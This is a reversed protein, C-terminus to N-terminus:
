RKKSVSITNNEYGTVWNTVELDSWKGHTALSNNQKVRQSEEQRRRCENIVKKTLSLGFQRKGRENRHWKM